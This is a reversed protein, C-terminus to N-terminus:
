NKIIKRVQKRHNYLLTMFYTGKPLGVQDVFDYHNMGEHANIVDIFVAHGSVNIIEFDVEFAVKQSFSVSLKDHFPNPGASSIKLATIDDVAPQLSIKKAISYSAHGDNHIHKVRYYFIENLPSEDTASYNSADNGKGEEVVEKCFIEEFHEGDVSREIMFGDHTESVAMWSLEVHDDNYTAKFNLLENASTSNNPDGGQHDSAKMTSHHVLPDNGSSSEATTPQQTESAQHDGSASLNEYTLDNSKQNGSAAHENVTTAGFTKDHDSLNFFVMWGLILLIFFSSTIWVAKRAIPKMIRLQHIGKKSPSVKLNM